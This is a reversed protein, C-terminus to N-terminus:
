RGRRAEPSLVVQIMAAIQEYQLTIALHKDAMFFAFWSLVGLGVGVVYPSWSGMAFPNRM